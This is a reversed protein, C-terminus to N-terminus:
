ATPEVPGAEPHEFDAGAPATQGDIRGLRGPALHSAHREALFLVRQALLPDAPGAEIVLHLENQAIVALVLSGVVANDRDAHELVDADPVIVFEEALHAVEQGVVAHTQQM